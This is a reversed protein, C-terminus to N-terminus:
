LRQYPFIQHQRGFSTVVRGRSRYCSSFDLLTRKKKTRISLCSPWDKFLSNICLHLIDSIPSSLLRPLQGLAQHSHIRFTNCWVPCCNFRKQGSNILVPAYASSVVRIASLSSSFLRKIFTFSSLSFAPKFSLMCFFLCCPM